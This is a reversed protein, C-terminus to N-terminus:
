VQNVIRHHLEGSSLLSELALQQKRNCRFGIQRCYDKTNISFCFALKTSRTNSCQRLVGTKVNCNQIMIRLDKAWNCINKFGVRYRIYGDSANVKSIWGDSDMLGQICAIRTEKNNNVFSPIIAKCQTQERFYMVIQKSCIILQYYSVTGNKRYVTKIRGGKNFFQKCINQCTECFDLDSSTISFQYSNKGVYACGDGLFAGILYSLDTVDSQKLHQYNNHEQLTFM